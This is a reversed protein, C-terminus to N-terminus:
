FVDRQTVRVVEEPTTLGALLKEIGDARLTTLGREIAGRKIESASSKNVIQEQIQPDIPMIEYIATRGSCGSHFCEDCGIGQLIKREAFQDPSLGLDELLFM